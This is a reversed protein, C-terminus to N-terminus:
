RHSRFKKVAFEAVGGTAGLRYVSMYSAARRFFRRITLLLCADLAEQWFKQSHKANGTSRERYYHKVWAWLYEIPN